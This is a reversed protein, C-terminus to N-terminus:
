PQVALEYIVYPPTTLEDRWPLGDEPLGLPRHTSRAVFGADSFFRRYDEDSWFTDSVVVGEPLLTAKVRQQSRLPSANEPHDVKCSLWDGAYFDPTNTVVLARGAPALVRRCETLLSVIDTEEAMELIMWSSILLEFEGDRFPLPGATSTVRYDGASHRNRAEVMMEENHDVGVVECGLECLFRTSRGAGCGVDLTRVPPVLGRDALHRFVIRDTNTFDRLAYQGAPYATSMVASVLGWPGATGSFETATYTLRGHRM